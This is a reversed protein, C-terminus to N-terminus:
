RSRAVTATSSTGNVSGGSGTPPRSGATRSESALRHGPQEPRQQGGYGQDGTQETQQQWRGGPAVARGAAVPGPRGGHRETDGTRGARQRQGDRQQESDVPRRLRRAGPDVDAPQHHGEAYAQVAGGRQDRDRDGRDGQGHLDVRDAIQPTTGVVVDVHVM